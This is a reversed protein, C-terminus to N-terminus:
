GNLGWIVIIFRSRLFVNSRLLGFRRSKMTCDPQALKPIVLATFV